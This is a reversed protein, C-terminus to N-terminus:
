KIPFGMGKLIWRSTSKDLLVTRGKYGQLKGYPRFGALNYVFENFERAFTLINVIAKRMQEPSAAKGHVVRDRVKEAIELNSYLTASIPKGYVNGFLDKFKQRTMHCNQLAKWTLDSECRHLKVTGCYITMNHALEVRHFTYVLSIEWPFAEILRPLYKFYEQIDKPTENFRKLVGRWTKPTETM